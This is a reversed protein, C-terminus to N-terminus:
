LCTLSAAGAVITLTATLSELSTTTGNTALDFITGTGTIQRHTQHGKASQEFVLGYTNSSAGCAPSTLRAIVGNGSFESKQTTGLCWFTAFHGSNPTVLVGPVTKGDTVYTNDYRLATMTITGNPQGSSHCETGFVTEACGNFSLQLSGGTTNMAGAGTVSTCKFGIGSTTWLESPPASVTFSCSAAGNPCHTQPTGASAVAPLAAIALATLAGAALLMLKKSM